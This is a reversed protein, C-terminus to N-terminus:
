FYTHSPVIHAQWLTVHPGRHHFHETWNLGTAWHCTVGQLRTSQLMGHRGTWWWSRCSVWVWTWQTPSAMWGDWGWNDGEGGVKLREWCWRRQWHTVAECWTALTNSNWSCCWDKWHINVVSKVKPHIEKCDLPSELTKELVVARFCWNKPAWSEKYFLGVRVDMCSLQFFWLKSLISRHQYLLAPKEIHQRPQEYSKM